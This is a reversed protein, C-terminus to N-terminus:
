QEAEPPEGRLLEAIHKVQVRSNRRRLGGAIHMLCSVDTATVVDAGSAEICDLKRQLMAGSIDDMKVAFLGGFGCCVDAEPLDVLELGDANELLQRPQRYVGLGRLGHCSAHYAVRGSGRGPLGTVGLIDVLFQSFEYTRAAVDAARAAYGPDDALLEPFHHVIMDACSGSPVVIPADSRSLLDVTHRAMARAEDRFGGNFAPQGCCTQGQPFEVTLGLSELIDVAAFGVDPFIHDVLCTVFLQVKQTKLKKDPM